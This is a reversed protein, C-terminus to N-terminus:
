VSTDCFGFACGKESQQTQLGNIGPNRNPTAEKARFLAFMRVRKDRTNATDEVKKKAREARRLFAARTTDEHTQIMRSSM